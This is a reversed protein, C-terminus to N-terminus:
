EVFRFENFRLNLSNQQKKPACIVVKRIVIEMIKFRKDARLEDGFNITEYSLFTPREDYYLWLINSVVLNFM